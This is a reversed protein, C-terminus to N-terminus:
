AHFAPFEKAKLVCFAAYHLIYFTEPAIRRLLARHEEDFRRLDQAPLSAGVGRCARIRGNWSDRTFPVSLDIIENAEIEFYPAYAQPIDIPRRTEGCGSWAPHFSLILDESAQAIPDEKPLWAMYLVALKGGKKLMQYLRPALAAHDFYFFCQCATITDFTGEPYEIKEAPCCVFDIEMHAQAALKNAQAIQNESLDTGTFHAGYPYLARPLVGTGTGLDLVKQGHTCLGLSRIKQYFAPPYIDRYKAYDTSAKGWDFAAGGDINPNQM